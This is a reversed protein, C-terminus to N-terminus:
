LLKYLDTQPIIYCTLILINVLVFFIIEFINNKRSKSWNVSNVCSYYAFDNQPFYNKCCATKNESNVCVSSSFPELYKEQFYDGPGQFTKMINFEKNLIQFHQKEEKEDFYPSIIGAEPIYKLNVNRPLYNKM